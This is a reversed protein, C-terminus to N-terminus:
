SHPPQQCQTDKGKDAQSKRSRLLCSKLSTPRAYAMKHFLHHWFSFPPLISFLLAADLIMTELLMVHIANFADLLREGLRWSLSQFCNIASQLLILQVKLILFHKEQVSSQCGTM